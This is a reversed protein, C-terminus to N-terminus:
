IKRKDRHSIVNKPKYPQPLPMYAVVEIKNLSNVNWFSKYHYNYDAEFVRGDSDTVIFRDSSKFIEQGNKNIRSPPRKPLRDKVSIWKM